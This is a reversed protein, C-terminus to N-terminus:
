KEEKRVIQAIEGTKISVREREVREGMAACTGKYECYLCANGYPTPAIFGKKLEAGSRRAVALSYRIFPEYDEKDICNKSTKGFSFAFLPSSKDKEGLSVDSGKVLEPDNSMFGELAFLNEGEGTYRVSAPFYYVGGPRLGSKECVASMYLQLQLKVGAYYSDVDTDILGTKYDIIRAYDGWEDVRDIKGFLNERPLSCECETEAVHFRSLAVQEYMAAAIEGCEGILRKAAYEGAKTDSLSAYKATRILKEAEAAAFAACAEASGIAEEGRRMEEATIRLIEHVFTGTDAALVVTEERPKLRLGKELFNAYPCTNYKELLTPSVKGSSFFLREGESVFVPTEKPALAKTVTESTGGEKLAFYLSSYRELTERGGTGADFESKLRLLERLAPMPAACQYVFLDEGRTIDSFVARAYRIVDSEERKEKTRVPRLLYLKETFSCVNLAVSERTRLNVQAVSPEIRVNLANLKGIDRESLLATDNGCLPVEDTMGLAFVLPVGEIASASVDGVFVADCTLPLLAVECATLGNQLLPLLDGVTMPTEGLLDEAESLVDPLAKDMKALYERESADPCVEVLSETKKKAGCLDYLRRVAAIYERGTAKRPFLAAFSLFRERAAVLRDRAARVASRDYGVFYEMLSDESKIEKRVGGRYNSFKSLYNRYEGGDGFYFGALVAQVSDSQFGDSVCRLLSFLFSAFPHESLSRRVDAYYPVSYEGFVAPLVPAYKKEDPFLVAIDRYRGGERVYKQVAACVFRLEAEEDAEECVVIKGGCVAKPEEAFAEPRFLNERLVDAASKESVTLRRSPFSGYEEGVSLFVREAENTFIEGEGAPFLGLVSRACEVAARIGDRAQATFSSFGFFVVNTERLSSAARLADPLLSLYRNEDIYGGRLLFETYAEGILALDALKDALLDDGATESRLMEPTIKSAFLQSLMEYVVAAGYRAGCRPSFCKLEEARESMIRGVVMVSGQKSLLRGDAKLFRAFTTVSSLFTGGRARCVAREALLTLRDECFVLTKEGKEERQLIYRTLYDLGAKLSPYGISEAM